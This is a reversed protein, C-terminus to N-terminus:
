ANCGGWACGSLLQSTNYSQKECPLMAPMQGSTLCQVWWLCPWWPPWTSKGCARGGLRCHLRGAWSPHAAAPRHPQAAQDDSGSGGAHHASLVRHVAQLSAFLSCHTGTRLPFVQLTLWPVCTAHLGCLRGVMSGGKGHWVPAFLSTKHAPNLPVFRDAHAGPHAAELYDAAQM